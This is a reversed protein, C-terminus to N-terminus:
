LQYGYKGIWIDRVIQNTLHALARTTTEALPSTLISSGHLEVVQHNLEISWEEFPTDAYWHPILAQTTWNEINYVRGDRVNLCFSVTTGQTSRFRIIVVDDPCDNLRFTTRFGASTLM